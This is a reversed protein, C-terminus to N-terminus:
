YHTFNLEQSNEEQIMYVDSLGRIDHWGVNHMNKQLKIQNKEDIRVLEVLNTITDIVTLASFEIPNGCVQVIWLGILDM